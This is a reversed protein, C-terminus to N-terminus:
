KKFTSTLLKADLLDPSEKIQKVFSLFDDNAEKRDAAEDAEVLEEKLKRREAPDKIKNIDELTLM